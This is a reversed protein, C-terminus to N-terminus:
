FLRRFSGFFSISDLRVIENVNSIDKVFSALIFFTVANCFNCFPWMWNNIGLMDHNIWRPVREHEFLMNLINQQIQYLRTLLHISLTCRIILPFLKFPKGRVFSYRTVISSNRKSRDRNVARENNSILSSIAVTHGSNIGAGISIRFLQFEHETINADRPIYM